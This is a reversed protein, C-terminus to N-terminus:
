RDVPPAPMTQRPKGDPPFPEQRDFPRMQQQRNRPLPGSGDQSGPELRLGPKLMRKKMLEEFRRNQEPKLEAHINERMRTFVSQIDPALILFYDAIEEQSLRLIRDVRVRQEPTMEIDNLARRAQDFRAPFFTAVPPTKPLQPATKKVLVGGTVVGAAFIVLTALVVLIVKKASM